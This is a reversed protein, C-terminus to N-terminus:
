RLTGGPDGQAGSALLEAVLQFLTELEFPKQLTRLYKKGSAERPIDASILLLPIHEHEKRSRLWEALELGNIGPLHYDLLVLAPVDTQLIRLAMEGSLAHLVGYTEEQQLAELLLDGLMPDDEVILICKSDTYEYARSQTKGM